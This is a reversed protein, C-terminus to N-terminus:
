KLGRFFGFHGLSEKHMHWGVHVFDTDEKSGVTFIGMFNKIVKRHLLDSGGYLLNNIHLFIQGQLERTKGFNYVAHDYKSRQCRLKTFEKDM